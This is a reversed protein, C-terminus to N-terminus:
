EAPLQDALRNLDVMAPDVFERVVDRVAPPVDRGDILAVFAALRRWANPITVAEENTM